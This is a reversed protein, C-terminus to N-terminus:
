GSLRFRKSAREREEAPAKQMGLKRLWWYFFPKSFGMRRAVAVSSGGEERLIRRVFARAEEPDRAYAESLESEGHLPM